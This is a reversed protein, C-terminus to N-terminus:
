LFQEIINKHFMQGQYQVQVEKLRARLGRLGQFFEKFSVDEAKKNRKVLWARFLNAAANNGKTWITPESKSGDPRLFRSVGGYNEYSDAKDDISKYHVKFLITEQRQKGDRTNIITGTPTLEVDSILIEKGDLHPKEIKEGIKSDSLSDLDIDQQTKQEDPVTPGDTILVM